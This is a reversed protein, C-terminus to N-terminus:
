YIRRLETGPYYYKVIKEATWGKEAMAKAGWQSMGVGHGWGRGQFVFVSGRAGGPKASDEAPSDWQPWLLKPDKKQQPRPSAASKGKRALAKQLYEEKKEPHLLMDLLEDTTFAGEQTLTILTSGASEENKPQSEAINRASLASTGDASVTFITSKLEKAGLAMRLDHSKITKRGNSGVVEILEVRDGPGLKVTNIEYVTGVNIGARSLRKGIEEGSIEFSWSTYPSQYSFPEQVPKLYPIDSGWVSQVDSTYGGSDSHFFTLALKGQYYLVMGKTSEVAKTLIPDEASVGRYPICHDTNCLDFGANGHRGREALAYTRATIAQARLVETPWNPNVEMKLIGKVYDDVSLKNVATFSNNSHILMLIGRYPRDNFYLLGKNSKVTVPLSLTKGGVIVKSGGGSKVTITGKANVHKGSVDYLTLSSAKITCSSINQALAVSIQPEAAYGAGWMVFVLLASLVFMRFFSKM